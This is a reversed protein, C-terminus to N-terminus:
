NGAGPSEGPDEVNGLRERIPGHKFDLNMAMVEESVIRRYESVEWPLLKPALEHEGRDLTNWRIGVGDRSDRTACVIAADWIEDIFSDTRFTIKVTEEEGPQVLTIAPTCDVLDFYSRALDPHIFSVPDEPEEDNVRAEVPTNVEYADDGYLRILEIRIDWAAGGGVNLITLAVEVDRGEPDYGGGNSGNSLLDCKHVILHPRDRSAELSQLADSIKNQKDAIRTQMIAIFVTAVGIVTGIVLGLFDTGIVLGLFDVTQSGM